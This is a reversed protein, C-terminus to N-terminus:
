GHQEKKGYLTHFQKRAQDMRHLLRKLEDRNAHPADVMVRKIGKELNDIKECLAGRGAKDPIAPTFM